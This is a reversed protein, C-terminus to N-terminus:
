NASRPSALKPELVIRLVAGSHPFGGWSHYGRKGAVLTFSSGRAMGSFVFAGNADSTVFKDPPHGTHFLRAGAIPKGAPDVIVGSVSGGDDIRPPELHREIRTVPREVKRVDTAV